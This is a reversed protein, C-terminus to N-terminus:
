ESHAVDESGLSMDHEGDGSHRPTAQSPAASQQYWDGAPDGPRVPRVHNRREERQRSVRGRVLGAYRGV